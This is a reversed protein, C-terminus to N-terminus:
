PEWSGGMLELLRRRCRRDWTYITNISKQQMLEQIEPFTKGLLKWRFLRRCREGLRTMADGFRELMRRREVLSEPNEVSADPFDDDITVPDNERRRTSKRRADMMKLRLIRFSLPLLDSLATVHPYKEHLLMLVDQALDEAVPGSMRSTVFAVIRERIKGLIEERDM